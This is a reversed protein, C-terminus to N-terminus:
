TPGFRLIGCVESEPAKLKKMAGPDGDLARGGVAAMFFNMLAIACGMSMVHRPM